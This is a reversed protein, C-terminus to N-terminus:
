LTSLLTDKFSSNGTNVMVGGCRLPFCVSLQFGERVQQVSSAKKTLGCVERWCSSGKLMQISFPMLSWWGGSMLCEEMSFAHHSAHTVQQLKWTDCIGPPFHPQWPGFASWLLSGSSTCATKHQTVTTYDKLALWTTTWHFSKKNQHSSGLVQRGCIATTIVKKLLFPM